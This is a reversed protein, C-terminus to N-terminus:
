PQPAALVLTWYPSGDQGQKVAAGFEEYAPNMINACHGPSDLWAQVVAEIDRQGSAVNEGWARAQYGAAEIRDRLTEGASGTHSIRGTEAMDRSHGRAASALQDNWSLAPAPSMAENGCERSQERGETLVATWTQQDFQTANDNAPQAPGTALASACGVLTLVGITAFTPRILM